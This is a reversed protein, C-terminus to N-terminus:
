QLTVNHSQAPLGSKPDQAWEVILDAVEGPTHRGPEYSFTAVPLAAARAVVQLQLARRRAALVAPARVHRFVAALADRQALTHIALQSGPEPGLIAIREVALPDTRHGQPVEVSKGDYCGVVTGIIADSRSALLPPGPWLRGHADIACADDALFAFGREVLAAALSSKGAGSSGLLLVVCDGLSVASGHLPELDFLPLSLPLASLLFALVAQQEGITGLTARVESSPPATVRFEAYGAWGVTLGAGLDRVWSRSGTAVLGREASWCMEGWYGSLSRPLWPAPLGAVAVGYGATSLDQPKARRRALDDSRFRHDGGADRPRSSATPHVVTKAGGDGAERSELQRLWTELLALALVAAGWRQDRLGGLGESRVFGHRVALSRDGFLSTLDNLVRSGVMEFHSAYRGKRRTADFGRLLAQALLPKPNPVPLRLELPLALGLRVVRQDLMPSAYELAVAQFLRELEEVTGSGGWTLLTEDLHERATRPAATRRVDVEVRGAVWPPVPRLRERFELVRRPLLARAAAKVQVCYSYIWRAHFGRAAAGALGVRGTRMLDLVAVPAASFLPEGGLGDLVVEARASVAADRLARAMLFSLLGPRTASSAAAEAFDAATMRDVTPCAIWRHGLSEAILRAPAEESSAGENEFTNTLCTAPIRAQALAVAVSGSDRGGSLLLCIRKGRARSEVAAVVVKATAQAFEDLTGQEEAVDEPRFWRGKRRDGGRQFTIWCGGLVRFVGQFTTHEGGFDRLALYAAVRDRDLEGTAFGLAILIAPDCAFGVRSGRAAWYLPRLGFADRSLTLTAAAQDFRALAFDAALEALGVAGKQAVVAELLTVGAESGALRAAATGDLAADVRADAVMLGCPSEAFVPREDRVFAGFAVPGRVRIDPRGRYTVAAAAAHLAEVDPGAPDFIGFIGSM